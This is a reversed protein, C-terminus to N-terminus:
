GLDPCCSPGTILAASAERAEWHTSTHHQGGRGQWPSAANSWHPQQTKAGTPAPDLESRHVGAPLAPSLAHPRAAHGGAHGATRDWSRAWRPPPSSRPAPSHPMPLPTRSRARRTPAPGHALRPPNEGDWQQGRLRPKWHKVEALSEQCWWFRPSDLSRNDSLGKRRCATARAGLRNTVGSKPGHLERGSGWRETPRTADLGGRLGGEGLTAAAEKGATPSGRSAAQPCRLQDGGGM